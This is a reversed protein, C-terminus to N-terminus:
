RWTNAAGPHDRLCAGAELSTPEGARSGRRVDYLHAIGDATGAARWDCCPNCVCLLPPMPLRRPQCACCARMLPASM